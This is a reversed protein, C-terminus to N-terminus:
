DSLLDSGDFHANDMRVYGKGGSALKVQAWWQKKGLDLYSAACHEGACGTGDPWKAFSIDFDSEYRGNVWAASWGEGRYAYTLIIDGRKLHREPLDREVRIRGPRFTIVVGRLATVKEGKALQAIVKRTPKWTDYIVAAKGATWQRYVCGEFPCAKWDYFPLVPAGRGSAALVLMLIAAARM